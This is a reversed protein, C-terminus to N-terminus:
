KAAQAIHWRGIYHRVIAWRPAVGSKANPTTATAMTQRASAVSRTERKLGCHRQIVRSISGKARAHSHPLKRVIVVSSCQKETDFHRELGGTGTSKGAGIEDREAAAIPSQM